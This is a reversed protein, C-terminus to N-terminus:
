LSEMSAGSNLAQRQEDLRLAKEADIYLRWERVGSCSGCEHM